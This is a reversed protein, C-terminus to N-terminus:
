SVVSIAGFSESAQFLSNVNIKIYNIKKYTYQHVYNNTMINKICLQM